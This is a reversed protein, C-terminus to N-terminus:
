GSFECEHALRLIDSGFEGTGLRDGFVTCITPDSPQWSSSSRRVLTAYACILEATRCSVEIETPAEEVINWKGWWRGCKKLHGNQHEGDLKAIYKSLYKAILRTESADVVLKLDVGNRWEPLYNRGAVECWLLNWDKIPIFPADLYMLHFHPAGRDQFELRWVAPLEGYRQEFRRRYEKLHAKYQSAETPFTAPYTLTIFTIREFKLTHLLRFLRYRSEASFVKIEGRAGGGQQDHEADVSVSYM